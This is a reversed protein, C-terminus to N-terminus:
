QAQPALPQVKTNDCFMLTCAVQGDQGCSCSNCGDDAPFGEGAKYTRGNYQCTNPNNPAPDPTGGQQIPARGAVQLYLVILLLAIIVSLMLYVASNGTNTIKNM